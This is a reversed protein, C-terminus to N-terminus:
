QKIIIFSLLFHITQLNEGLMFQELLGKLEAVTEKPMSFSSLVADDSFRIVAVSAACAHVVAGQVMAAREEALQTPASMCGVMLLTILPFIMPRKM